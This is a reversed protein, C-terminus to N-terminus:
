SYTYFDKKKDPILSNVSFPWKRDIASVMLSESSTVFKMNRVPYCRISELALPTENDDDM